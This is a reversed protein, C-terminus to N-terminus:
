SLFGALESEHNSWLVTADRRFWTKQKKILQMTSQEISEQLWEACRGENLYEVTEKFGVSQLPAWDQFGRDLFKKTEEVIGSAIMDRTRYAVRKRYIEKEFDFGIKIYPFRFANKGPELKLGSPTKGTFRIIEIARVLRYHDNVHIKSVPDKELLEEHLSEAGKEILEKEIQQRFEEPVPEIDFMGKELAQIYFGTGGVIFLPFKVTKSDVLNYFDEIYKAATVEKPAEVYSYLFHPARKKDTETPAASGIELGKYFQVSDINVISGGFKEAQELAWASKGSATPGVVFICKDTSAIETSAAL